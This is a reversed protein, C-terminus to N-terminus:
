CETDKAAEALRRSHESKRDPYKMQRNRLSEIIKPDTIYGSAISYELGSKGEYVIEVDQSLVQAGAFEFREGSKIQDLRKACKGYVVFGWLEGAKMSFRPLDIRRKFRIVAHLQSLDNAPTYNGVEPSTSQM